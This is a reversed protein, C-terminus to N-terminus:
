CTAVRERITMLDRHVDASRLGVASRRAIIVLDKDAPVWQGVAWRAQRVFERLLRKLRNRTVANGVKSSVTIGVRGSGGRAVMVVFHQTHVRQGNAQISLFDGRKRLRASQPFGFRTM